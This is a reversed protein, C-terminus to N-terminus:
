LLRVRSFKHFGPWATAFQVQHQLESTQWGNVGCRKNNDNWQCFAKATPFTCLTHDTIVTNPINGIAPKYKIRNAYANNVADFKNVPSKM